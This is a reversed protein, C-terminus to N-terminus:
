HVAKQTPLLYPRDWPTRLCRHYLKVHEEAIRDWSTGEAYQLLSENLRNSLEPNTLVDRLALHLLDGEPNLRYFADRPFEDFNDVNSAIVPKNPVITHMIGSAAINPLISNELTVIVDSANLYYALEKDPVFKPIIKVDSGVDLEEILNLCERLYAKGEKQSSHPHVEGVHVYYIPLENKLDAVARIIKDINKRRGLFAHSLIIKRDLPLGLKLKAVKSPIQPLVLTGHPIVVIRDPNMEEKEVLHEKGSIKHVISYQACDQLDFKDGTKVTHLTIVTRGVFQSAVEMLSETLGKFIGYEHQIHITHPNFFRLAELLRQDPYNRNFCRVVKLDTKFEDQSNGIYDEAFIVVEHEKSLERALHESYTSIGCKVGYPTVLAIRM